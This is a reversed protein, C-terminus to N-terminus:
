LTRHRRLYGVIGAGLGALIAAGPAPIIEVYTRFQADVEIPGWGSGQDVLFQGAPYSTVDWKIRIREEFDVGSHYTVIAYMTGANVTIGEAYFDIINWGLPLSSSVLVSGLVTGSPVGATVTHIEWTTPASSSGGMEIHDLLGTLGATFTQAVKFPSGFYISGDEDNQYQDLTPAAFVSSCFLLVVSLPILYIYARIM